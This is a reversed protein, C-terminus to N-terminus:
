ASPRRRELTVISFAHAHRDDAPLDRREIERWESLDFDPFRVDGSVEADIWTMYLREVRPLFAAYITSGGIVVVEDFGRTREIAEDVSAVVTCDPATFGPDRSLVVNERRPLARGLSEFTKRGMIVAKGTTTQKFHAMDLPLKWPLDGDRGIVRNRAVAAILSLV